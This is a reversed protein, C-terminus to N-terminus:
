TAFNIKQPVYNYIFVIDYCSVVPIGSEIKIVACILDSILKCLSLDFTLSFAKIFLGALAVDNLM